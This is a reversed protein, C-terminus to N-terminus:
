KELKNVFLKDSIKDDNFRNISLFGLRLRRLKVAM